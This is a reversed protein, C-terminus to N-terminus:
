IKKVSISYNGGNLKMENRGDYLEYGRPLRLIGHLGEPVSINLAIGNNDRKYECSLKGETFNYYARAFSMQSIFGPIIEFSTIDNVHPNPHIGAVKEIMWGTIDGMFHHNMSGVSEDISLFNEWLTTAGNEIWYGYCSRTKDTILKFALDNEGIESLAHFIYRLGIMGCTNIDGDRHIIEVLRNQAAELECEDFLGRCIAAVQATQCNGEVTMTDFDILNERFACRLRGAYERAEEAEEFLGTEEFLHAAKMGIDYLEATSTIYLPTNFEGYVEAFPDLWDGLGFDALGKDNLRTLSYRFYRLIMEANEKVIESDGDFKYIYYPLNVCVADWAPGNGWEFGWGGTPIIAPLNGDEHQAARINCLWERLLPTMKYGLLFHEASVSADGTWGNKERHPCDTPFYYFNSRDSRRGCEFLKNLIDDSCEFGSRQEMESSQEVFILVDDTIQEPKLGEVYAYRFGDYKFVPTFVEDGGRCIYEDVQGYELYKEFADKEQRRFLTTEVSVGGRDICREAHRVTIKQGPEGKIHLRSIGATNVGFDFVYVNERVTNLDPAANESSGNYCFPLSDYHTVSVPKIERLTVIPPVTCLKAEGRPAECSEAFSWDSDNFGPLNWGPIELRADYRCGMRLDDFTVPSPHTKFSEDAEFFLENGQGSAKFSLALCVPGRSEMEEFDWIFGGFANRFGNGLQIGIINEGQKLLGPIKYFDYYCIDGVNSIYPALPGKTIETGNIWLRYFGLGCILIEANEAEFDIEFKKRFYPSPIHNEFDCMEGNARIFRKSFKM